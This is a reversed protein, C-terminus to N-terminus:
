VGGDMGVVVSLIMQFIKLFDLLPRYDPNFCPLLIDIMWLLIFLILITLFTKLLTEKM